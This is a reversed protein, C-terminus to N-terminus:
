VRPFRLSSPRDAKHQMLEPRASWASRSPEPATTLAQSASCSRVQVAALCAPPIGFCSVGFRGVGGGPLVPGPHVGQELLGSARGTQYRGGCHPDSTHRTAPWRTGLKCGVEPELSDVSGEQPNHLTCISALDTRTQGQGPPSPAVLTQGSNEKRGVTCVPIPLQCMSTDVPKQHGHVRQM